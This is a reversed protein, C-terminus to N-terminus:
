IRKMSPPTHAGSPIQSRNCLGYPIDYPLRDWTCATPQARLAHEEDGALRAVKYFLHQEVAGPAVALGLAQQHRKSLVNSLPPATIPAPHDEPALKRRKFVQDNLAMTKEWSQERAGHIAGPKTSVEM